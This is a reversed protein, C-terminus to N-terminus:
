SEMSWATGEPGDSLTVGAGELVSRIQDALPWNAQSRAQSRLEVLGMVLDLRGRRERELRGALDGLTLAAQEAALRAARALGDTEGTKDLARFIAATLPEPQDTLPAPPLAPPTAYLKPPADANLERLSFSRGGALRLKEAGTELTVGGKGLATMTGERCDILCATHEDVGLVGTGAPLLAMLQEFRAQGLYCFRTDFGKGAGNDFHPVVAVNLGVAALLDLGDLWHPPEGSKFIEYVPITLRGLTLAAASSFVMCGGRTLTSRLLGPVATGSWQRLAYSPSGPGSFVLLSREITRLYGPRTASNAHDHWSPTDLHLQLSDQFYAAAQKTLDEVNSQFAAPTDLFVPNVTGAQKARAILRRHVPLMAKTLEGSGLIAIIGPSTPQAPM